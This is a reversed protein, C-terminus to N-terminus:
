RNAVRDPRMGIVEVAAMAPRRPAVRTVGLAVACVGCAAGALTAPQVLAPDSLWGVALAVAPIMYVALAATRAGVRRVVEFFTVYAIGTPLVGLALVAVMVSTSPMRPNAGVLLVPAVLLASVANVGATSRLPGFRDVAPQIMAMSGGHSVAAVMLLAVAWVPATRPDAAAPIFAAVTGLGLAAGLRRSMPRNTGRAAGSHSIAIILATWVPVTGLVVGATTSTTGVQGLAITAYAVGTCLGGAVLARWAARTSEASATPHRTPPGHQAIAVSWIVIAGVACRLFTIELPPLEVLAYETIRFASGWCLATIALLAIALPKM